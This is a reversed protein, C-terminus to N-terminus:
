HQRTSMRRPGHNSVERLWHLDAEAIATPDALGDPYATLGSGSSPGMERWDVGTPDGAFQAGSSAGSRLQGGEDFLSSDVIEDDLLLKYSYTFREPKPFKASLDPSAKKAFLVADSLPQGRASEGTPDGPWDCAPRPGRSTPTARDRTATGKGARLGEVPREDDRHAPDACLPSM